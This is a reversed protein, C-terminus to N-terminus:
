VHPRRDAWWTKMRLSQIARYETSAPARKSYTKGRLAAGIKHKTEEPMPRHSGSNPHPIEGARIKKLYVEAGIQLRRIQEESVRIGVRAKRMREITATSHRYGARSAVRKIIQEKTPILGSVGDGGDTMNLLILGQSRLEVIIRKEDINWKANEQLIILKVQEDANEVQRIWSYLKSKRKGMRASSLHAHLRKIPNGAQGVYRIENPKSSRVLGYVSFVKAM